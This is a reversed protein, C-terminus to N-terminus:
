NQLADFFTRARNLNNQSGFLPVERVPVGYAEHILHAFDDELRLSEADLKRILKIYGDLLPTKVVGDVSALAKRVHQSAECLAEAAALIREPAADKKAYKM